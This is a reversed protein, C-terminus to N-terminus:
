GNAGGGRLELQHKNDLATTTTMSIPSRQASHDYSGSRSAFATMATVSNICQAPAAARVRGVPRQQRYCVALCPVSRGEDGKGSRRVADRVGWEMRGCCLSTWGPLRGRRSGLARRYAKGTFKIPDQHIHRFIRGAPGGRATRARANGGPRVPVRGRADRLGTGFATWSSSFTRPHLM